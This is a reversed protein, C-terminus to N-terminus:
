QNRAALRHEDFVKGDLLIVRIELEDPSFTLLQVHHGSGVKAQPTNLYWRWTKPTRQGVGLGGEGIYVVGTPDIRNGRIPPTRKICHGDAECVLDV